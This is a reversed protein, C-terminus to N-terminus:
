EWQETDNKFDDLLRDLDVFTYPGDVGEVERRDGSGLRNDYRVLCELKRGFFLVYRYPHTNPPTAVEDEYISIEIFTGNDRLEKVALILRTTM